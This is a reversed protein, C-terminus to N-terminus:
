SFLFDYMCLVSKQNYTILTFLCWRQERELCVFVFHISKCYIQDYTDGTLFIQKNDYTYCHLSFSLTKLVQFDYSQYEISCALTHYCNDMLAVKINPLM